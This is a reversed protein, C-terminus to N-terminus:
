VRAAMVERLKGQVVRPTAEGHRYLFLDDGPPHLRQLLFDDGTREALVLYEGDDLTVRYATAGNHLIWGPPASGSTLFASWVAPLVESAPEGTAPRLPNGLLTVQAQSDWVAFAAEKPRPSVALEFIHGGVCFAVARYPKGGAAFKVEALRLEGTYPFLPVGSWDPRRGQMRYFSIESWSPPLRHVRNIAAVQADFVPRAESPIVSRVEALLREELPTFRRWLLTLREIVREEPPM